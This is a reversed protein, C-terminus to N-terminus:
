PEREVPNALTGIGEVEVEVTDGAVLQGVGSPTGTSVLDGPLLTMVRSIFSVLQAAGFILDSTRGDQRPQGNVRCRVALDAASLGQVVWPGACAFTDFSKARTYQVDKRQLDRATVDNFCTLGWIARAAEAEDARACRRGIVLAVEAEHHVEQSMRPLRIPAGHPNLASAPKLFLLPEPPLPKGMEEAHRRYNLGICVVKTAETPVLLTAGVLPLALGTERVGDEWPPGSLAVVSNGEIRGHWARGDHQFRCFRKM